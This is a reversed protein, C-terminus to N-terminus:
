YRDEIEYLYYQGGSTGVAYIRARTLDAGLSSIGIGPALKITTLLTGATGDRVEISNQGASLYVHNLHGNVGMFSPTYSLAVTKKIKESSGDVINLGNAAQTYLVDTIFDAGLALGFSTASVKFTVPNIEFNGSSNNVYFKGTAPNLVTPGMVGGTGIRGAVVAYTDANVAWVRDNDAGCQAAVWAYRRKGDVWSSVPCDSLSVTTVERETVGSYVEVDGGYLGPLWVRHTKYDVSHAGGFGNVKAVISFSSGDVVTTHNGSLNGGSSVYVHNLAPDVAIICCSNRAIRLQKMADPMASQLSRAANKTHSYRLSHRATPVALTSGNAGATLTSSTPGLGGGGCAALVAVGFCASALNMLGKRM